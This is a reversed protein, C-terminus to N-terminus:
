RCEFRFIHEALPSVTVHQFRGLQGGFRAIREELEAVSVGPFRHRHFEASNRHDPLRMNRRKKATRLRTRLVGRFRRLLNPRPLPTSAFGAAVLVDLMRDAALPGELAAVHRELIRRRAIEGGAPLTGALAARVRQELEGLDRAPESLANPLALDFRESVVPQYAIAPTGVVAAEVATTCGNHVLARCAMLWPIVTGEHVVAANRHAGAARRWPEHDESPHPRVVVTREPFAAALEPVLARFAEFLARKHAALGSAFDATFGLANAGPQVRSPEGRAPQMVNLSPVFANVMAFNTNVLIFDGFRRRLADAEAKFVPRLEDRLLDMRPNGTVHIPAGHYGEFARLARADDEGWAFLIAVDRMARASLRRSQYEVDALRVLAEEDFAVIQHGLERLISFMKDSLTRMSKALYVGRPLRAAEFHLLARSGLVVSFGREAAVCALLLKADLERVQSEVPVILTPRWSL